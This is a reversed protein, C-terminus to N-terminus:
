AVKVVVEMMDAVMMVEMAAGMAAEEKNVAWGEGEMGVAVMSAVLVEVTLVVRAAVEGAVEDAEADAEEAM